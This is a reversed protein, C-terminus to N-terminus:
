KMNNILLFTDYQNHKPLCTIIYIYYTTYLSLKVWNGWQSQSKTLKFSNDTSIVSESDKIRQNKKKCTKTRGM